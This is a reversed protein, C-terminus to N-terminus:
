RLDGSVRTAPVIADREIRISRCRFSNAIYVKDIRMRLIGIRSSASLLAVLRAIVSSTKSLSRVKLQRAQCGASLVIRQHGHRPPCRSMTRLRLLGLCRVIGACSSYAWWQRGSTLEFASGGSPILRNPM